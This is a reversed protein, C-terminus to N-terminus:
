SNTINTIQIKGGRIVRYKVGSWLVERKFFATVFASFSLIDSVITEYPLRLTRNAIQSLRMISFMRLLLGALGALAVRYDIAAGFFLMPLYAYSFFLTIIGMFVNYPPMCIFILNARIFKELLIHFPIFGVPSFVEPGMGVKLGAEIAKKGMALDDAIYQGFSRIGGIKELTRRSLAVTGGAVGAPVGHLMSPAWLYYIGSNWASEYMRAWTNRAEMHTPLCSVLDTGGCLCDVIRRITDPPALIDADSFILLDHKAIRIGYDLNSTKGLLDPQVANICVEFQFEKSLKGLVGLAPDDPDQLSFIFQVHGTYNQKLWSRFCEESFESVGKIPKILSVPPHQPTPQHRKRFVYAAERALFDLAIALLLSALVYIILIVTM